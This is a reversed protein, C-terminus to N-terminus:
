QIEQRVHAHTFTGATSTAHTASGGNTPQSGRGTFQNHHSTATLLACLLFLLNCRQNAEMCRELFADLIEHQHVRSAM